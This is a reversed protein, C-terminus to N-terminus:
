KPYIWTYGFERKDDPRGRAYTVAISKTDAPIYQAGLNDRVWSDLTHPLAKNGNDILWAVLIPRDPTWQYDINLNGFFTTMAPVDPLQLHLNGTELWGDSMVLGPTKGEDAVIKEVFAAYPINYSEYRGFLLPFNARILFMPLTIIMVALPVWLFRKAFDEGRVGGAQMKLCFAIPMIFLFPLMWRDRMATIGIAFVLALVALSIVVFVTDFFRSWVNGSRLNGLFAKGFVLSYIIFTPGLIVLVLEIFEYPGKLFKALAGAPADQAMTGLTRESAIDLNNILWLGHPLFLVVAVVLSLLFRRDFIRARGEPHLWVAVISGIVVLTFNYKSLMGLGLSVGVMLYSALSPAKLTKVISYLLLNIMLMQAVTHTLDRQSGWFIQPITFLSLTAIVAFFRDELVLKALQYYTAFLLFLVISKAAAVTALSLGFVSVIASQFWNFLPPQTDYGVVMWQSFFAQQSEDVRMGHPLILRVIFGLIFYGALLWIVAEPKRVLLNRM